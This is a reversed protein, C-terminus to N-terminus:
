RKKRFRHFLGGRNNSPKPIQQVARRKPPNSLGRSGAADPAKRVTPKPKTVRVVTRPAERAPGVSGDDGDDGLADPSLTEDFSVLETFDFSGQAEPVLKPVVALKQEDRRNKYIILGDEVIKRMIPAAVSGGSKGGQVFVCVAFKPKEYPAFGVFWAHNDPEGDRKFQATGTKGSIETIPSKARRATGGGDNVVEWMGRRVTEIQADTIGYDQLRPPNDLVKRDDIKHITGDQAEVRRHDVLRPRRYVGGSAVTAVVSAMQLPTCETAGQGISVNATHASSWRDRPHEQRLWKPGPIRGTGEGPIRIGTKRGLGFMEGSKLIQNIGAANGYQYFFSNCSRKIAQQLALHAHIGKGKIWCKMELNGFFVSGACYFQRRDIGALCGAFAVPIKFTSGPAFSRLARNVLPATENDLYEKYDKEDIAPIFKQPDFSPVSAMALINGTAPDIVVVAGREIKRLAMEAAYQLDTDLTLYVDNGSTPPVYGVEGVFRGKENFLLEREGPKGRLYSDMTKELGDGGIKDPVYYDYDNFDDPRINQVDADRVYGFLHGAMAGYRYRRKPRASPEVGPLDLSHEAFNAFQEFTLEMPYSYPVLGNTGRWHAQMQASNFPELDDTYLMLQPLIATNIIKAIDPEQSTVLRGQSNQRTYPFMPLEGFKEEKEKYFTIIDKFNLVLEYTLDNEVLVKGRIDRIEGRVGPVRAIKKNMSPVRAKFEEGRTIQISWLRMLLMSFCAIVLMGLLYIRFRYRLLM